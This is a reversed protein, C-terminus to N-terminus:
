QPATFEISAAGRQPGREIRARWRMAGTTCVPLMANGAYSGDAQRTLRARNFGMDMDVGDFQLEVSAPLADPLAGPSTQHGQGAQEAPERWVVQLTQAAPIPRPLIELQASSGDARRVACTSVNLDCDRLTAEAHESAGAPAAPQPTPRGDAPLPDDGLPPLAYVALLAAAGALALVPLIFRSRSM